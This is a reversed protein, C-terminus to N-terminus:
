FRDGSLQHFAGYFVTKLNEVVHSSHIDLSLGQGTQVDYKKEGIYGKM